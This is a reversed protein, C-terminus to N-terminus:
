VELEQDQLEEIHAEELFQRSNGYLFIEFLYILLCVAPWAKVPRKNADSHKTQFCVKCVEDHLLGRSLVLSETLPYYSGSSLLLVALMHVASSFRKQYM